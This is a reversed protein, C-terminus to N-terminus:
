KSQERTESGKSLIFIMGGGLVLVAIVGFGTFLSAISPPLLLVWLHTLRAGAALVYVGVALYRGISGNRWAWAMGPLLLVHNYREMHPAALMTLLVWLYLAAEPEEEGHRWIVAIVVAACIILLTNTLIGQQTKTLAIVPLWEVAQAEELSVGFTAVEHQRTMRDLWAGLSQDDLAGAGAYQGAQQPLFRFWYDASSSPHAIYTLVSLLALSVFAIMLMRWRRLLLLVFLWLVPFLKAAIAVSWSAGTALDWRLSRRIIAQGAILVALLLFLSNQGLTLTLVVPGFTITVLFAIAWATWSSYGAIKSLRRSCYASILILLGTWLTAALEFPVHSLPWLLVLWMPTSNPDPLAVPIRGALLATNEPTWGYPSLGEGLVYAAGYFSAFDIIKPCPVFVNLRLVATSVHVLLALLALLAVVISTVQRNRLSIRPLTQSDM